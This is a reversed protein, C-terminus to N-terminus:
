LLLRTGACASAVKQKLKSSQHHVIVLSKELSWHFFFIFFSIIFSVLPTLHPVNVLINKGALINTKTSMDFGWLTKLYCIIESTGM